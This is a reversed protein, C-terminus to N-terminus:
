IGGEKDRAYEAVSLKKGSSANFLDGFRIHNLTGELKQSKLYRNKAPSNNKEIVRLESLAKIQM